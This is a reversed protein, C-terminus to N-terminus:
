NFWTSFEMRLGYTIWVASFQYDKRLTRIPSEIHKNMLPTWGQEAVAMDEGVDAADTSGQHSGIGALSRGGHEVMPLPGWGAM